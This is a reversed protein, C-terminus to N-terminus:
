LLAYVANGTFLEGERVYRSLMEDSAHGTQARIKLTSVGAQAASTAFGARLSHGSYGEANMGAAALRERLLASVADGSLRTPSIHGHRTIPRFLPGTEIKGAELWTEIAEVPCYCTRGYPIGVRRGEAEQDTKSRRLTVVLGRREAEIDGVELSVLESRRFGGAFGLLILARDRRDRISSGMKDLLFFLEERLLPKARRQATGHKRKLGRITAKVVETRCPNPLGAVDHAKSLTLVRRIITSVALTGAHDGIFACVTSASAPITGGWERFHALDSRYARETNGALTHKLLGVAEASITEGLMPLFADDSFNGSIQPETYARFSRIKPESLQSNDPKLSM